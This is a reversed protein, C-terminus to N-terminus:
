QIDLGDLPDNSNSEELERQLEEEFVYDGFKERSIGITLIYSTTMDIVGEDSIMYAPEDFTILELFLERHLNNLRYQDLKIKTATLPFLKHMNHILSKRAHDRAAWTSFDYVFAAAEITGTHDFVFTVARPRVLETSSDKAERVEQSKYVCDAGSTIRPPLVPLDEKPVESWKGGSLVCAKHTLLDNSNLDFGNFVPNRLDRLEEDASATKYGVFFALLFVIIVVLIDVIPRPSFTSRM